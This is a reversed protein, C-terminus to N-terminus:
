IKRGYIEEAAKKSIVGNAVDKAVLEGSRKRPDGYGGGGGARQHYVTGAPVERILDLSDPIKTTGDPYRLEISNLTGKGGGHLGFAPEVDGDGFVVLQTDDSGIEFVTEV